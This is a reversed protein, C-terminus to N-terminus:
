KVFQLCHANQATCKCGCPQWIPLLTQAAEADWNVHISSFRSPNFVQADRQQFVRPRCIRAWMHTKEESVRRMVEKDLNINQQNELDGQLVSALYKFLDTHMYYGSQMEPHVVYTCQRFPKFCHECIIQAQNAATSPFFQPDLLGKIDVYLPGIVQGTSDCLPSTITKLM